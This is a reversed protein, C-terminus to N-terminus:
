VAVKEPITLQVLESVCDLHELRNVCDLLDRIREDPLLDGVLYRFKTEFEADTLM